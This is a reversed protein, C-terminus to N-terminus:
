VVPQPEGFKLSMKCISSLWYVPTGALPVAYPGPFPTSADYFIALKLRERKRKGTTVTLELEFVRLSPPASPSANRPPKVLLRM